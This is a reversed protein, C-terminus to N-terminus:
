AEAPATSSPSASEAEAAARLRRRVEDVPMDMTLVLRPRAVSLNLLTTAAGILLSLGVGLLIGAYLWVPLGTFRLSIGFAMFGLIVKWSTSSFMAYLPSPQPATRLRKLNKMAVQGIIRTGKYWGILLSMALVLTVVAPDDLRKAVIMGRVLMMTAGMTWFAAGFRALAPGSFRLFGAPAAPAPRPGQVLDRRGGQEIRSWDERMPDDLRELTMTALLDCFPEDGNPCPLYLMKEWEFNALAARGENQSENNDGFFGFPFYVVKRIGQKHVEEACEDASPFTWKGGLTHNLWAVRVTRFREKLHKRILGFFYLTEKAGGNIGEPPYQLTGHAGLILAADRCEAANWGAGECLAEVFEAVVRGMREDFGFGSVYVPRPLKHDPNLQHFTALDTRSIGGTFDSEAVYLPLMVIEAPPDALSEALIEPLYPKYFERVVRVRFEAGPRKARLFAAVKAAQEDSIADLPSNYKMETFMKARIRARRAALLPTVFEPIPAVRRTLRNLISHSYDYQPRWENVPPEGYTLCYVDIRPPPM